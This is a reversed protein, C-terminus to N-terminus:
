ETNEKGNLRKQQELAYEIQEQSCIGRQILIEGLKKNKVKLADQLEEFTIIKEKLLIEGIKYKKKENLLSQIQKNRANLDSLDSVISIVSENDFMIRSSIIMDVLEKKNNIGQVEHIIHDRKGLFLEENGELMRTLSEETFFGILSGKMIEDKTYGSWECIIDNIYTVEMNRNTIVVGEHMSNLLIQYKQELHTKENIDIAVWVICNKGNIKHKIPSTRAEFYVERNNIPLSYEYIQAENTNITNKVIRSLINKNKEPLVENFTKGILESKPKILNHDSKAYIEIYRCDEDIIFTIDPLANIIANLRNQTRTQLDLSRSLKKQTKKLQTIDKLHHIIGVLENDEFIPAITVIYSRNNHEIESSKPKQSLISENLPCSKCSESKNFFIKHCLHGNLEGSSKNYKKKVSDNVKLIRKNKTILSILDPLADFAKEWYVENM